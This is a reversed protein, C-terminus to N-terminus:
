SGEVRDLTEKCLVWEKISEVLDMRQGSKELLEDRAQIAEDKTAFGRCGHVRCDEATAYGYPRDPDFDLFVEVLQGNIAEAM